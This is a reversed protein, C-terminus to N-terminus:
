RWDQALPETSTVGAAHLAAIEDDGLGLLDRLVEETHQGYSPAPRDIVAPTAHLGVIPGPFPHTGVEPRELFRFFERSWLHEDASLEAARACVAAPVGAHQLEAEIASGDRSSTWAAIAEDVRARQAERGAVTALAPDAALDPRDMAACLRRWDDDDRAVVAVWLGTPQCPYLDHPCRGPRVNGLRAPDHGTIQAQVLEAGLYTTLVEIQSLDIVDGEGTLARRELAAVIALTGMTGVMADTVSQGQLVPPGGPVGTLAALGSVEETPFAFAVYDRWPGTQGFGSLSAVVVRPNTARLVDYGIGLNGLVRPTFNEVVVDADAVLRLFLRRGEDSALDLSIGRKSRNVANWLPNREFAKDVMLGAAGRWGDLRQPAEVKIVDAGFDGLLMACVPGAQWATLDLVRVGDLPPASTM